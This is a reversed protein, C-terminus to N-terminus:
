ETERCVHALLGPLSALNDWVRIVGHIRIGIVVRVTVGVVRYIDVMAVAWIVYVALTRGIAVDIQPGSLSLVLTDSETAM